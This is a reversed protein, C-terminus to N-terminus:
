YCTLKKHTTYSMPRHEYKQMNNDLKGVHNILTVIREGHCIRPEKTLYEKMM